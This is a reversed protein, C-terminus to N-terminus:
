RAPYLARVNDVPGTVDPDPCPSEREDGVRRAVPCQLQHIHAVFRSLYDALGYAGAPTLHIGDRTFWRPVTATFDDWEALILDPYDGSVVMERLTQNNKTFAENARRKDPMLYTVDQQYTLWIVRKAGVARAADIVAAASTPFSTWWEDYGAMVVVDDFPGVARQISEVTNPPQPLDGCSPIGLTRCSKADYVADMGRLADLAEYIEIGLLTSDGVLLVRPLLAAAASSVATTTTRSVTTSTATPATSSTTTSTTAPATTSTTATSSTATAARSPGSTTPVASPTTVNGACSALAM